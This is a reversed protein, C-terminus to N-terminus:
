VYKVMKNNYYKNTHQSRAQLLSQHFVSGNNTNSNINNNNNNNNIGSFYNSDLEGDDSFCCTCHTWYSSPVAMVLNLKGTVTLKMQIINMTNPALHVFVTLMYSMYPATQIMLLLLVINCVAYQSATVESNSERDRKRAEIHRNRSRTNGSLAYPPSPPFSLPISQVTLWCYIIWNSVMATAIKDSKAALLREVDM